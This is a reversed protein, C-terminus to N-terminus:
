SGPGPRASVADRPNKREGCDSVPCAGCDCDRRSVVSRRIKLVAYSFAALLAAGAMITQIDFNM